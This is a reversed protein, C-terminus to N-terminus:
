FFPFTKIRLCEVCRFRFNFHDLENCITNSLQKKKPWFPNNIYLVNGKEPNLLFIIKGLKCDVATHMESDQGGEKRHGRIYYICKKVHNPNALDVKVECCGPGTISATEHCRKQCQQWQSISGIIVANITGGCRYGFLKRNFEGCSYFESFHNKYALM